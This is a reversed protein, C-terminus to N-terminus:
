SPTRGTASTVALAASRLFLRSDTIPDDTHFATLVGARELERGNRWDIDRAELKGGPSDKAAAGTWRSM